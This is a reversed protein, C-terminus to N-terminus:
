TSSNAAAYDSLLEPLRNVVHPTVNNREQKVTRRQKSSLVSVLVLAGIFAAFGAGFWVVVMQNDFFM